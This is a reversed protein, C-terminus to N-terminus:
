ERSGAKEVREGGRSGVKELHVLLRGNSLTTEGTTTFHEAFAQRFAAETIHTYFADRGRLLEQFKPDAPPIWELILHRTTLAAALAAIRPLPIQNRLLLHHLVALMLVADFHGHCRALFAASERNEWGIAPTPQALDICLPLINRTTPQGNPALSAALRDVAQLDTDISVVEAGYNAALNSYVGTNAGIDLIRLPRPTPPVWGDSDISPAGPTKTETHHPPPIAQAPHQTQIQTQATALARAVFSRKRDHDTDSYHTATEAYHSWTSAHHKPTVARMRAELSTLTKGLIHRALAPDKVTRAASGLSPHATSSGPQASQATPSGPQASRATSKKNGALLTPLTVASLAPQRLRQPWSLAAYIEEPEIGDRRTMASALPWGLRQHALMPLLFTRVFQAYPLWLPQHPDAPEISLVDVFVARSGRFLINLPTADKLIYGHPLLDRCLSLTLTAAALWLTPPWEWPFSQFPIRPHRLLLTEGERRAPLIESPILRGERVLEHAIPLALFDLIQRDYPPRISRYVADPRLEVSGAPDRFTTHPFTLVEAM